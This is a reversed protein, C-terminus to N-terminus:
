FYSFMNVVREIRESSSSVFNWWIHREGMNEGGIVMVRCDTLATIRVKSGAEFVAMSGPDLEQGDIGLKGEVLYAGLEAYDDPLVVASGAPMVLELYLMSARVAVPSEHGYASGIIVTVAVGEQDLDNDDYMEPRNIFMVVDADQELSGSDRLDSLMPRKDGGRQVVARSLQSLALVPVSLEKALAKM